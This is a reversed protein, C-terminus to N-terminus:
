NHINELLWKKFNNINNVKYPRNFQGYNDKHEKADECDMYVCYEVDSNDCFEKYLPNFWQRFPCNITILKANKHAFVMNVLGTGQEGFIINANNVIYIQYLFDNVTGGEFEHFNNDKLINNVLTINTIIRRNWTANYVHKRTLYLKDFVPENRYKDNAKKILQQFIPSQQRPFCPLIHGIFHVDAQGGMHKLYLFNGDYFKNDDIFYIQNQFDFLKFIESMFYSNTHKCVILAFKKNNLTINKFYNLYIHLIVVVETMNHHYHNFKNVAMIYIINPDLKIKVDSDSDSDFEKYTNDHLYYTNTKMISPNSLPVCNYIIENFCLATIINPKNKMYDDFSTVNKIEICNRKEKEYKCIIKYLHDIWAKELYIHKGDKNEIYPYEGVLKTFLDKNKEIYIDKRKNNRNIWISNISLVVEEEFGNDKLIQKCKEDKEKNFGDIEICIIYININWDMTELVELEGGEVDIFFIDIYKYVNTNLIKYFPVSPIKIIKNTDSLTLEERLTNQIGACMSGGYPICFDVLGDTKSICYNLCKCNPRTKKLIEFSEPLPEILMGTFGLYNEFFLSNSYTKGDNGGIEVFIGNCKQNILNRFIFIDQLHQSNFILNDEM